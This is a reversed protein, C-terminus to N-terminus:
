SLDFSRRSDRCQLPALNIRGEHDHPGIHVIIKIMDLKPSTVLHTTMDVMVIRKRSYTIECIGQDLPM